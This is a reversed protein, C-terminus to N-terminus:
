LIWDGERQKPIKRPMLACCLIAFALLVGCCHEWKVQCGVMTFSIAQYCFWVYRTVWLLHSKLSSRFSVLYAPRFISNPKRSKIYKLFISLKNHIFTFSLTDVAPFCSHSKLHYIFETCDNRFDRTNHNVGTGIYEIYRSPTGIFLLTLHHSRDKNWAANNWLCM